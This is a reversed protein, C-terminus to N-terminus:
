ICRHEAKSFLIPFGKFSIVGKGGLEGLGIVINDRGTTEVSPDIAISNKEQAGDNGYNSDASRNNSNVSVYHTMPRMCASRM